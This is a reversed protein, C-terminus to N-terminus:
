SRNYRLANRYRIRPAVLVAYTPVPETGSLYLVNTQSIRDDSPDVSLRRVARSLHYETTAPTSAQGVCRALRSSLPTFLCRPPLLVASTPVPETGSLYLVNTQSIKYDNPM